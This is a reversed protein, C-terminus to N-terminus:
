GTLEDVRFQVIRRILDEPLPEGLPFQVTAKATAYGALEDAFAELGSPTPYLGVHHKFAAFYVMHTGALDFAPVGYGWSEVAEPAQSAIIARMERLLVQAAEPFGAIYEDIREAEQTM